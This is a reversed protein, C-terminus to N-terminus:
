NSQTCGPIRLPRDDIWNGFVLCDLLVQTSSLAKTLHSLGSDTDVEKGEIFDALHRIGADYYVVARVGVARYNHRGYKRGGEMMGLAMEMVVRWPLVNLPINGTLDEAIKFGNTGSELQTFPEVCNPYKKIIEAAHENLEKVFIGTSRLRDDDLRNELEAQRLVMIHAMARALKPIPDNDGIGEWFMMMNAVAPNFCRSVKLPSLPNLEAGLGEAVIAKAVLAVTQSSLCSMPVKKVGIADKPNTPKTDAM